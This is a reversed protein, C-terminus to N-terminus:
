LPRIRDGIKIQATNLIEARIGGRHLLGALVGPKTRKELGQCPECLEVGRMKVGGVLFERGVLDNLSVGRTVINRRSEHINLEIGRSAKLDSYAEEEILTVHQIKKPIKGSIFNGSETLCYRDGELGRGQIALISQCPKPMQEKEAIFIAVITM